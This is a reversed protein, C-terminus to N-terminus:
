YVRGDKRKEDTDEEARGGGGGECRLGEGRGGGRGRAGRRGATTLRGMETHTQTARVRAYERGGADTKMYKHTRSVERGRERGAGNRITKPPIKKEPALLQPISNNNMELNGKSSWNTDSREMRAIVPDRPVVKIRLTM